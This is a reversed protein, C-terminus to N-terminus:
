VYARGIKYISLVGPFISQFCNEAHMQSYVKYSRRLKYKIKCTKHFKASDLWRIMQDCFVRSYM